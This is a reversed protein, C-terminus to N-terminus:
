RQMAMAVTSRRMAQMQPEAKLTDRAMRKEYRLGVRADSKQPM